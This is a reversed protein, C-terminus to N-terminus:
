HKLKNKSLHYLTEIITTKQALKITM